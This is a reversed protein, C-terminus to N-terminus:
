HYYFYYNNHYYVIRVKFFYIVLQEARAESYNEAIRHKKQPMRKLKIDPRLYLRCSSSLPDCAVFIDHNSLWQSAKIM